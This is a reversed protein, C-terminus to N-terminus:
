KLEGDKYIKTIMGPPIRGKLAFQSSNRIGTIYSSRQALDDLSRGSNLLAILQLCGMNTNLDDDTVVYTTPLDKM